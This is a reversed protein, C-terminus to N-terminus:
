ATKATRLATPNLSVFYFILLVLESTLNIKEGFCGRFDLDTKVSPDLHKPNNQLASFFVTTYSFLYPKYVALVGTLRHM